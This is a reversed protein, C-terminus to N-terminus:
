GKSDELKPPKEIGHRTYGEFNGCVTIVLMYNDNSDKMEEIIEFDKDKSDKM